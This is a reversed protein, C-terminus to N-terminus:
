PLKAKFLIYYIQLQLTWKQSCKILVQKISQVAQLCLKQLNLYKLKLFLYVCAWNQLYVQLIGVFAFTQQKILVPVKYYYFVPKQPTLM